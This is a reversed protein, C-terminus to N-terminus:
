TIFLATFESISPSANYYIDTEIENYQMQLLMDRSYICNFPDVNYMKSPM